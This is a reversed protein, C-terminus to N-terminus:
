IFVRHFIFPLIYPPHLTMGCIVTKHFTDVIKGQETPTMKLEFKKIVDVCEILQIESLIRKVTDYEGYKIIGKVILSDFVDMINNLETIEARTLHNTVMLSNTFQRWQLAMTKPTFLNSLEIVM